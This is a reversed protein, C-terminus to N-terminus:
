QGSFIVGELEYGNSVAKDREGTSATYLYKGLDSKFLRYVPHTGGACVTFVTGDDKWGGHNHLAKDREAASSTYLHKRRTPNYLRYIPETGGSSCNYFSTGEYSYGLSNIARDREYPSSTLFYDQAGPRYLRFVAENNGACSYFAIGEDTYGSSLGETQSTTYLSNGSSTNLHWYVPVSGLSNASFVVKDFSFGDSIAQNYADSGEVALRYLSDKTLRAVAQTGGYCYSFGTGDSAWGDSIYSDRESPSTTYYHIGSKHLRFVAPASNNDVHVFPVSYDSLSAGNYYSDKSSAKGFRLENQTAGHLVTNDKGAILVTNNAPKVYNSPSITLSTVSGV